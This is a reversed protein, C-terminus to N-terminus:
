AMEALADFREDEGRLIRCRVLSGPAPAKGQGCMIKLKLYNESVAPVFGKNCDGGTEVIAEVERGQWCRLYELRGKRALGSLIDVRRAKEKGSVQGPFGAAATGPRPSFHFAHIWAFGIGECLAATEEFDNETEGPFGAIIDCAIFPDDRSRRLCSVFEVIDAPSYARGMKALISASGSQLSLHFHPRIRQDTIVDFFADGLGFGGEDSQCEQKNDLEISSLRLRIKETGKLLFNLLGPLGAVQPDRYQSINVGTIVAESFGRQELSLLRSLVEKANLSKNAGRALSVRCFSCRHDCGDQIKLFARSHSTFTEPAFRFTGESSIEFLNNKAVSPVSHTLWSSILNPIDLEEMPVAQALFHPLDLLRDKMEGPIVFLRGSGGDLAALADVDMQAYCGTVILCAQPQEKLAKRIIRRAKQEAMSTVTCTNILVLAPKGSSSTKQSQQGLRNWPILSFGERYFSDAIAETELQNLKCGLTFVSFFM